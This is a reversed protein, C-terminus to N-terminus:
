AAKLRAKFETIRKKNVGAEKAARIQGLVFTLRVPNDTHLSYPSKGEVNPDASGNNVANVDITPGLVYHSEIADVIAGNTGQREAQLRMITDRIFEDTSRAVESGDSISFRREDKRDPM